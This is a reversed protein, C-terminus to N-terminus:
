FVLSVKKLIMWAVCGVNATNQWLEFLEEYDNITMVKIM